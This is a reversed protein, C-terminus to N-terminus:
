VPYLRSGLHYYSVILLGNLVQVAEIMDGLNTYLFSLLAIFSPTYYSYYEPNSFVLDTPYLKPHAIKEVIMATIYQDGVLQSGLIQTNYWYSAVALLVSGVLLFIHKATDPKKFGCTPNVASNEVM